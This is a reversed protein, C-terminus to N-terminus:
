GAQEENLLRHARRREFYLVAAAGLYIVPLLGALVLALDIVSDPRSAAITLSPMAVPAGHILLAQRYPLHLTEIMYRKRRESRPIRPSTRGYWLRWVAVALLPPSLAVVLFPLLNDEGIAASAAVIGGLMAIPAAIALTTRQAPSFYPVDKEAM